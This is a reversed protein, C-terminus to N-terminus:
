GVSRLTVGQATPHAIQSGSRRFLSFSPLSSLKEDLRLGPLVALDDANLAIVGYAEATSQLSLTEATVNIEEVGAVTEAQLPGGAMAAFGAGIIAVHYQFRM